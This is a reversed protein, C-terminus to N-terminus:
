HSLRYPNLLFKLHPWLMNRMNLLLNLNGVAQLLNHLSVFTATIELEKEHSSLFATQHLCLEKDRSINFVLSLIISGNQIFPSVNYCM